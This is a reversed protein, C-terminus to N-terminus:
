FEVAGLSLENTRGVDIGTTASVKAEVSSFLMELAKGLDKRKLYVSVLGHKALSFGPNIKLARKFYYEVGKDDYLEFLVNGINTFIAPASPYLFKAYLLVPLSTKVSDMMRLIVGFNNVILTDKPFLMVAKASFVISTNVLQGTGTLMVATSSLGQAIKYKNAGPAELKRFNDDIFSKEIADYIQKYQRDYFRAAIKVVQAETIVKTTDIRVYKYMTANQSVAGTTIILAIFLLIATNLFSKM